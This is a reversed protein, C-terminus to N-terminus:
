RLPFAFADIPPYHEYRAVLRIARDTPVAYPAVQMGTANSAGIVIPVRDPEKHNIAALIRDRSSMTM